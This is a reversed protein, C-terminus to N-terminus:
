GDAAFLRRERPDGGPQAEDRLGARRPPAAEGAKIFGDADHVRPDFCLTPVTPVGCEELRLHARMKDTATETAASSNVVRVGTTELQRMVALDQRGTIAGLRNLFFDPRPGAKGRVSWSNESGGCGAQIVIANPDIPVSFIGRRRCAALLEGHEYEGDGMPDDRHLIALIPNPKFTQFNRIARRSAFDLRAGNKTKTPNLMVGAASCMPHGLPPKGEM